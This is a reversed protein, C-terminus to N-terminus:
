ATFVRQRDAMYAVWEIARLATVRYDTYGMKTNVRNLLSDFGVTNSIQVCNNLYSIYAYPDQLRHHHPTSKSWFRYVRSDWIAYKDPRIFHLLKSTGVLSNNIASKLTLLSYSDLQQGYKVGNLIDVVAQFGTSPENLTLITPMWGYVAHAGIIFEHISITNLDLFFRVLEPYSRIYSEMTESPPITREADAIEEFTFSV